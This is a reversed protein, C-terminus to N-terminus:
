KKILKIVNIDKALVKDITGFIPNPQGCKIIGGSVILKGNLFDKMERTCKVKKVIVDKIKNGESFMIGFDGIINLKQLWKPILGDHIHGCLFLNINNLFVKAKNDLISFNNIDEFKYLTLPSHTILIKFSNDNNIKLDETFCDNFLKIWDKEYAPYYAEYTPSIGVFTLDEFTLCNNNCLIFRNNSEKEFNKFYEYIDNYKLKLGDKLDHNGFIAIVPAIKILGQLLFNLKKVTNINYLDDANYIMDGAIIIYDPNINQINLILENWVKYSSFKTNHIDSILCLNYDKNLDLSYIKSEKIFFKM